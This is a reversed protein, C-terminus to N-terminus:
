KVPTSEMTRYWVENVKIWNTTQSKVQKTSDPLQYAMSYRITGHTGDSSISVDNVSASVIKVPSGIWSSYYEKARESQTASPELFGEIRNVDEQQNSTPLSGLLIMWANARGKLSEQNATNLNDNKLRDYEEQTVWQDNYRILGENSPSTSACASFLASLLLAIAFLLIIKKM